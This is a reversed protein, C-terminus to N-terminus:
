GFAAFIEDIAKLQGGATSSPVIVPTRVGAQQWAELGDRVRMAPGFLSVDELWRDSLYRPVDDDRGDAIARAIQTMEEVYGAEEWYNRYNPLYTYRILNRRCVEKAAAVDNSICIPLMNGIFFDPDSRKQAPLASLSAPMHSLAANAFVVGQSIEGALAVMKQRLAAIVIPPFEGVGEV